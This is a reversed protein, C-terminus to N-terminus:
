KSMNTQKDTHTKRSVSDQRKRLFTENKLKNLLKWSKVCLGNSKAQLPRQMHTQVCVRKWKVRKRKTTETKWVRWIWMGRDMSPGKDGPLEEKSMELWLAETWCECSPSSFHRLTQFRNMIHMLHTHPELSKYKKHLKVYKLQLLFLIHHSQNPSHLNNTRLSSKMIKIHSCIAM